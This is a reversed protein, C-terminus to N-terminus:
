PRSVALWELDVEIKKAKLDVELKVLRSPADGPNSSSPVRAFWPFCPCEQLRAEARHLAVRMSAVDSQMKILSARAADNDVFFSVRRHLMRDSWQELAAAVPAIEM